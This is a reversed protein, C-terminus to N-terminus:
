PVNKWKVGALTLFRTCLQSHKAVALRFARMTIETQKNSRQLFSKLNVEFEAATM